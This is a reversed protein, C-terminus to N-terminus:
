IARVSTAAQSSQQDPRHMQLALLLLGRVNVHRRRCRIVNVPEHSVCVRGPHAAPTSRTRSSEATSPSYGHMTEDHCRLSLAPIGETNSWHPVHVHHMCAPRQHVLVLDWGCATGGDERGGIPTLRKCALVKIRRCALHILHWCRLTDHTDHRIRRICVLPLEESRRTQEAPQSSGHHCRGQLHTICGRQEGTASKHFVNIVFVAHDCRWCVCWAYAAFLM